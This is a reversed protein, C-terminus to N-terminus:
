TKIKKFLKHVARSWINRKKKKNIDRIDTDHLRLIWAVVNHTNYTLAVVSITKCHESKVLVNILAPPWRILPLPKTKYLPVICSSVCLSVQTFMEPAYTDFWRKWTCCVRRLGLLLALAQTSTHQHHTEWLVKRQRKTAGSLQVHVCNTLAHLSKVQTSEHELFHNIVYKLLTINYETDFHGPFPFPPPESLHETKKTTCLSACSSGENIDHTFSSDPMPYKKQVRKNKKPFPTFFFM